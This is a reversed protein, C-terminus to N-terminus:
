KWQPPEVEVWASGPLVLEFPFVDPELGRGPNRQYFCERDIGSPCRLLSVPRRVVGPLLFPAVGSYYEALEAKTIHGIESIVRDPHTITIGGAALARAKTKVATTRTVTTPM